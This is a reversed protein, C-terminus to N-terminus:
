EDDGSGRDNTASETGTSNDALPGFTLTLGAFSIERLAHGAFLVTELGALLVLVQWDYPFEAFTGAVIIVLITLHTAGALWFKLTDQNVM